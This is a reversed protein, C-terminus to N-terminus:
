LSAMAVGPEVTLVLIFRGGENATPMEEVLRVDVVNADYSGVVEFLADESPVSGLGLGIDRMEQLLSGCFSCQKVNAEDRCGREYPFLIFYGFNSVSDNDFAAMASVEPRMGYYDINYGDKRELWLGFEDETPAINLADCVARRTAEKGLGSDVVGYVKTIFDEATLGVTVPMPAVSDQMSVGHSMSNLEARGHSANLATAGLFLCTITLISAFKKM